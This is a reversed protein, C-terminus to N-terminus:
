LSETAVICAADGWQFTVAIADRAAVLAAADDPLAPGCAVVRVPLADDDSRELALEVGHAGFGFLHARWPADGTPTAVPEGEIMLAQVRTAEDITIMARDAWPAVVRARTRGDVSPLRDLWPPARDHPQSPATWTAIRTWPLARQPTDGFEARARLSPPLATDGPAVTLVATGADADTVHTVLIHQPADRDHVDMAIAAVGGALALAVCAALVPRVRAAALAWTAHNCVAAVPLALAAPLMWGFADELGLALAAWILAFAALGIAPAATRELEDRLAAIAFALAAPVIPLVFAPAAGPAVVVAFIAVLTWALWTALALEPAHVRRAVIRTLGITAAGVTGWLAIRLPLPHALAAPAGGKCAAVLEVLAVGAIASGIWVVLSGLVGLVLGRTRVRGRKRGIACALVFALLAVCLLPVSWAAPWRLVFLGLVDTFAADASTSPPEGTAFARTTALVTDGQHQVSGADLHALDDLPTHYRSVGGIFALNIGSIGARRLVSFDTDNPMRRYVEVALSTGEPSAVAGAWRRVLEGNGDSTEFVATRGGTGRAEVNIAVAIDTADRAFAEAGLLGVEEGEDFLFLVTREPQDIVLARAVELLVAVGHMDDGAGPGAHVSDYHAVLLVAPGDRRGEVSALVNVVPACASERCVYQPQLGANLGIARLEEVIRARVRENAASGVPHPAEDGLLRALVGLARGASFRDVPADEREPTPTGRGLGECLLAIVIIAAALLCARSGRETM